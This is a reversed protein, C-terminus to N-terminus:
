EEGQLQTTPPNPEDEGVKRLVHMADTYLEVADAIEALERAEDSCDTCGMLEDARNLAATLDADNRIVLPKRAM